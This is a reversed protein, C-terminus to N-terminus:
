KGLFACIVSAHLAAAMPLMAEDPLFRPNHLPACGGVGIHYFCGPTDTIFCGFDETTMTPEPIRLVKEEGLLSRATEEVLRCMGDHNVVGPYSERMNLEVRTGTSEAISLVTRRFSEVADRRAEPGLTRIIGSFEAREAIINGASGSHLTGTSIITRGNRGSLERRLRTLACVMEAAAALADVGKEPEAGHASKGHVTVTFTNSAAYFKGYRIGVTGAPQGPSVHAGFVADVHPNEMCGADMMRQAGGCGEEDPQFFFKVTGSLADRCRSLLLAAGLAAAMHFDHGCAHMWGSNESAFEAGTQEQIPLADMDARLAATRGPRACRLIGVVATDLCRHTEIGCSRLVDEIIGATHFEENGPEPFSHLKRRLEFLRPALEGAQTLFDSRIDPM